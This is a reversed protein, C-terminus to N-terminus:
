IPTRLRPPTSDRAAAAQKSRAYSANSTRGAPTAPSRPEAAKLESNRLKGQLREIGEAKEALEEQLLANAQASEELQVQMEGMQSQMESMLSQMELWEREPRGDTQPTTMVHAIASPDSARAGARRLELALGDREAVLSEHSNAADLLQSELIATAKKAAAEQTQLRQELTALQIEAEQKEELQKARRSREKRHEEQLQAANQAAVERAGRVSAELQKKTAAAQQAALQHSAQASRLQRVSEVLDTEAKHRAPATRSLSSSQERSEPTDAQSHTDNGGNM